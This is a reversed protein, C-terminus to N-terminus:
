QNGLLVVVFVLLIINLGAFAGSLLVINRLRDADQSARYGSFADTDAISNLDGPPTRLRLLAYAMVFAFSLPFLLLYKFLSDSIEFAMGFWDAADSPAFLAIGWSILNGLSAALFIVCLQRRSYDSELRQAFSYGVKEKQEEFM